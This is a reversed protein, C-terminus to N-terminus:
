NAMIIKKEPSIQQAVFDSSRSHPSSAIWVSLEYSINMFHLENKFLLISFFLAKRFELLTATQM